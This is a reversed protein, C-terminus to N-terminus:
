QEPNINHITPFDELHETSTHTMWMKVKELKKDKGIALGTETIGIGSSKVLEIMALLDGMEQQLCELHSKDPAHHSANHIGFRFIKCIEQVTEGCEEMLITLCEEQYPTLGSESMM